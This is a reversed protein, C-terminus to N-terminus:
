DRRGCMVGVEKEALANEGEPGADFGFGEDATRVGVVDPDVFREGGVRV